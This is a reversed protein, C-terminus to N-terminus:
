EKNGGDFACIPRLKVGIISGLMAAVMWAWGHLSFSAIGGFYAGINCGFSIRAGYGMMIGGILLGVVMRLPVRRIFRAAKGSLGLALLAGLMVGIDMVSTVDQIISNNLAAANAPTQWFGWDTVQIGLAQSVKAGWLAFASTVGWPKGSLYLVIGNGLALVIGGIMLPWPGTLLTKWGKWEFRLSQISGTRRKEVYLTVAFVIAMLLVNFLLGGFAGFSNVFSVPGINPTGMWWTFDASGIVSGAVFGLLTIVGRSDGGGIHYLTGSACGDGMQMGIGFIFAGILVSLGVPSVYGTVQQGFLGVLQPLFLLNALMFMIMQSRIGVGRGELLFSRFSSTFGYHAHYLALGLVGAILYLTGQTYSVTDALFFFGLIFLMLTVITIPRNMTTKKVKLASDLQVANAGSASM